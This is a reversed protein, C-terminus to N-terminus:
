KKPSPKKKGTKAEDKLLKEQLGLIEQRLVEAEAMQSEHWDPNVIAQLTTEMADWIRSSHNKYGEPFITVYEGTIAFGWEFLSNVYPPFGGKKLVQSIM